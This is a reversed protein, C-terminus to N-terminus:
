PQEDPTERQVALELERYLKMEADRKHRSANAVRVGQRRRAERLADLTTM